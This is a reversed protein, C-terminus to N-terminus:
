PAGTGRFMRRKDPKEHFFYRLDLTLYSGNLDARVRHPFLDGTYWTLEAVAMNGFPRHYTAGFYLYGSKLTRYEVGLNAVVGAQAWDSRFLYARADDVDRVADSPYMDLSFGIANNMWTREGLRIYVLGTLPIEYGTWRIRDGGTFGVTDNTLTWDYARRIQNIGVELSISKTIGARVLMGFSFGGTLELTGYLPEEGVPTVPDFFDLPFVPKVQVGFTTVGLQAHVGSLALVLPVIVINRPLIVRRM